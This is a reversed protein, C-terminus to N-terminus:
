KKLKEELGELTIGNTEPVFMAVFLIALICFVSFLYFLSPKGFTDMFSFMGMLSM